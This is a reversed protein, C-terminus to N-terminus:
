PTWEAKLRTIEKEPLTPIDMSEADSIIGDIFVAMERSDYESSGKYVRYHMFEKGQVHGTGIEDFYKFYGRVDIGKVVSIMESQGYKRLEMLYVEDKSSRLCDAIKGILSWAFANANLSRKAHWEKIEYVRDPQDMLWKVLEGKRGIM